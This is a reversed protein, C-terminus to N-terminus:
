KHSYDLVALEAVAPAVSEVVLLAYDSEVVATLEDTAAVAAAFRSSGAGATEAACCWARRPM